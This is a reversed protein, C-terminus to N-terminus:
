SVGDSLCVKMKRGAQLHRCFCLCRRSKEDSTTRCSRRDTLQKIKPRVASFVPISFFNCSQQQNCYGKLWRILVWTTLVHYPQMVVQGAVAGVELYNLNSSKFSFNQFYKQAFLTLRHRYNCRANNPEIKKGVTQNSGTVVIHLRLRKGRHQVTGGGGNCRFRVYEM